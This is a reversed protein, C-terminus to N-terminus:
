KLLNILHIILAIISLIIITGYAILVTKFTAEGVKDLTKM